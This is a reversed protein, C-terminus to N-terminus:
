VKKVPFYGNFRAPILEYKTLNTMVYQSNLYGQLTLAKMLSFFYVLDPQHGDKNQISTLLAQREAKSSQMFKRSNKKQSAEDVLNLGTLFRQRAKEDYCDAIMKMVFLHVNLGKAGPTNSEPIIAEAVEALLRQGNLDLKLDVQIEGASATEVLLKPLLAVGATYFILHKLASRREM